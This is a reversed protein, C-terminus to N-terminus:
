GGPEDGSLVLDFQGDETTFGDAAYVGLDLDSTGRNAVVMADSITSGPDITYDFSTRDSGYENSATRVAWTVDSTAPAAASAVAAATALLLATWQTRVTM